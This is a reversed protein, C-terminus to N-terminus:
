NKRRNTKRNKRKKRTTRKKSRGGHFSPQFLKRYFDINNSEWAKSTAKFKNQVKNRGM